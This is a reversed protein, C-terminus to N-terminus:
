RRRNFSFPSLTPNNSLSLFRACSNQSWQAFSLSPWPDPPALIHIVVVSIIQDRAGGSGCELPWDQAGVKFISICMLVYHLFVFSLYYHVQVRKVVRRPGAVKSYRYQTDLFINPPWHEIKTKQCRSLSVIEPPKMNKKSKLPELINICM